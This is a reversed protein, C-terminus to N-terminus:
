DKVQQFGIDMDAMELVMIQIVMTMGILLYHVLIILYQELLFLLHTVREHIIM